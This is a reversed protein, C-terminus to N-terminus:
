KAPHSGCADGAEYTVASDSISFALHLTLKSSVDRTLPRKDVLPALYPNARNHTIPRHKPTM